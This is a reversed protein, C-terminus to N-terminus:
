NKEFFEGEFFEDDEDEFFEDYLDEYIECVKSEFLEIQMENKCVAHIGEIGMEEGNRIFFGDELREEGKVAYIQCCDEADWYGYMMMCLDIFLRNLENLSNYSKEDMVTPVDDWSDLIDFEDTTFVDVMRKQFMRFLKYSITRDYKLGYQQIGMKLFNNIKVPLKLDDDIQINIEINMFTKIDNNVLIRMYDKLTIVKGNSFAREDTFWHGGMCVEMGNMLIEEQINDVLEKLEKNINM